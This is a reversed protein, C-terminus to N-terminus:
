ASYDTGTYELFLEPTIVGESVLMSLIEKFEDITLKPNAAPTTTLAKVQDITWTGRGLHGYSLQKIQTSM